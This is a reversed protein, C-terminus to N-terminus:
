HYEHRIKHKALTEDLIKKGDELALFRVALRNRDFERNLVFLPYRSRTKKKPFKIKKTRYPVSDLEGSLSNDQKAIFNFLRKHISEIKGINPFVITYEEGGIQVWKKRDIKWIKGNNGVMMTDKEKVLSASLPPSPRSNRKKIDSKALKIKSLIKEIHKANKKNKNGSGLPSHFRYEFGDFYGAIFDTVQEHGFPMYISSYNYFGMTHDYNHIPMHHYNLEIGRTKKVYKWCYGPFIPGPLNGPVLGTMGTGTEITM